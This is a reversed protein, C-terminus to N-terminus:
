WRLLWRNDSTTSVSFRVRGNEKIVGAKIAAPRLYRQVVTNAIASAPLLGEIVALLV